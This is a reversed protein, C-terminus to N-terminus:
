KVEKTSKTSGPLQVGASTSPFGSVRFVGRPNTLDFSWSAEGSDLFPKTVVSGEIPIQGTDIKFTEYEATSNFVRVYVRYKRDGNPTDALRSTVYVGGGNVTVKSSGSVSVATVSPETLCMGCLVSSDVVQAISPGAGITVILGAFFAASTALAVGRVLRVKGVSKSVFYTFTSNRM